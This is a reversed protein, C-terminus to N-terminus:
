ASRWGDGDGFQMCERRVLHCRTVLLGDTFRVHRGEFQLITRQAREGQLTVTSGPKCHWLRPHPPHNDPHTM